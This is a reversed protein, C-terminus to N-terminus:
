VQGALKSFGPVGRVVCPGKRREGKDRTSECRTYVAVDCASRVGYVSGVCALSCAFLAHPQLMSVHLALHL